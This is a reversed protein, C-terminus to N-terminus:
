AQPARDIPEPQIVVPMERMMLMRRHWPNIQWRERRRIFWGLASKQEPRIQLHPTSRALRNVMNFVSIGASDDTSEAFGHTARMAARHRSFTQRVTAKFM